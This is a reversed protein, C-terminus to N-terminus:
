EPLLRAGPHVSREAQTETDATALACLAYFLAANAPIHMNFDFLSHVLIGTIGVLAALRLASSSRSQWHQSKELGTRFVVWLFWVLLAIGLAGTEIGLQLLDNHAQNTFLNSYFSQYKPYVVPFLGLGWGAIPKELLLRPSDRLVQLRLGSVREDLPDRLTQIRGAMAGTDIWFAFTVLAVAVLLSTMAARRNGYARYLLFGLFCLALAFALMGGRSRSLFISAGMLLAAFVWLARPGARLHSRLGMVLAIPALMEMLSAYHNHNVYPGFLSSAARPERLWYLKGNPTFDQVVAFLALLFGLITFALAFRKLREHSSCQTLLLILIGYAVYNLGESLTAYPYATTGLMLQAGILVAFLLMPAFLPNWRLHLDGSLAQKGVWILFVLVSGSRVVFMSWPEVAGFALPGFMLLVCAGWFLFANVGDRGQPFPEPEARVESIEPTSM